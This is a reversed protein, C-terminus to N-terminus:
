DPEHCVAEINHGDPDLVFAGYYHADYAPRLGPAGADSGGNALAAQYFADVQKRHSAAFAIHVGNGPTAPEGNSPKELAFLYDHAGSGYAVSGSAMSMRKLGIVALVPDYFRAAADADNTGLSVHHIM